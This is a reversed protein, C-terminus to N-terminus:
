RRTKHRLNMYGTKEDSVSVGSGAMHGDAYSIGCSGTIVPLVGDPPHHDEAETEDAIQLDCISDVVQSTVPSTTSGISYAFDKRNQDCPQPLFPSLLTFSSMKEHDIQGLESNLVPAMKDCEQRANKSSDQADAVEPALITSNGSATAPIESLNRIPWASSILQPHQGTPLSAAVAGGAPEASRWNDYMAGIALPRQHDVASLSAGPLSLLQSPLPSFAARSHHEEEQKQEEFSEGPKRRVSHIGNENRNDVVFGTRKWKNSPTKNNTQAEVKTSTERRSLRTSNKDRKKLPQQQYKGTSM